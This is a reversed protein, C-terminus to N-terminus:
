PSNDADDQLQKLLRAATFSPVYGNWDDGLADWVGQAAKDSLRVFRLHSHFISVEQQLVRGDRSVWVRGRPESGSLSSGTDARYVIVRSDLTKHDWTITDEREVVAQLIELPTAAPSFPSYLPVTWRQGVRLGPMRLQPSLEDSLLANPPLYWETKYPVEGSRVSLKLLSGEVQGQVKIADPINAVRVRSEFGVLRGLPDIVLQTKKDIDLKALNGLVPKLVTSLWEPAIENITFNGLYVRSYLDTIGDKRRAAKTAAWGITKDHLRVAWCVEPQTASEKLISGYSPPEGVRLPPLIKAVVLWSMTALWFLIVIVNFPHSGM